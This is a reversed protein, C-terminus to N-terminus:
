FIKSFQDINSADYIFPNAMAGVGKDDFTVNGIRGMSITKGPGGAAGRVIRVDIQTAAYGLDIPNWIAFTKSAGSHIHGAMESPLGLGTIFVKGVLKQDEVAKAAAVIGVSTPAIIAKLNPFEKLLGLTERYSDDAQDNGYVTKVLKMNPYNSWAKKMEAIWANQNTATPTASLIAVEGTGGIADAAMKDCTQGILASNSPDLQVIRGKESVGSDFSIVKIGREGAKQLTPVLADADNASVMIGDVHQAIVANLVQIQEEATPKTPGTYIIEVGGLEKAADEAGKHVADFFGNGLSKVVLALKVPKDDARVTTQSVAFAVGLALAAIGVLYTKRTM